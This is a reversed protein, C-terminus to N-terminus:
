EVAKVRRWHDMHYVLQLLFFVGYGTLMIALNIQGYAAMPGSILLGVSGAMLVLLAFAGGGTLAKEALARFGCAVLIAPIPLLILPNVATVRYPTCASQIVCVVAVSWFFFVRLLKRNEGMGRLLANEAREWNKLFSLCEMVPLLPLTLMLVTMCKRDCVPLFCLLILLFMGTPLISFNDMKQQRLHALYVAWFPTWECAFFLTISEARIPIIKGANAMAKVVAFVAHPVLMCLGMMWLLYKMSKATNQNM